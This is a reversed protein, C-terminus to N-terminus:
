IRQTGPINAALPDNFTSPDAYYVHNSVLLNLTPSSFARYKYLRRPINGREEMGTGLTLVGM